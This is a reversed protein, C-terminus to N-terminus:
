GRQCVPIPSSAPRGSSLSEKRSTSATNRAQVQATRVEANAAMVAPFHFPDRDTSATSSVFAWAGAVTIVTACAAATFRGFGFALTNM